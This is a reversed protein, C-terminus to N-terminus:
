FSRPLLLCPFGYRIYEVSKRLIMGKNAKVVGGSEGDGGNEEKIGGIPSNSGNNGNGNPIGFSSPLLPDPSDLLGIAGCASTPSSSGLFLFFFGGIYRNVASFLLSLLDRVEIRTRIAM